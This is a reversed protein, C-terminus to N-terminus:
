ANTSNRVGSSAVVAREKSPLDSLPDAKFIRRGLSNTSIVTLIKDRESRKKEVTYL